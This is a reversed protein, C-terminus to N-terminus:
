EEKEKYEWAEICSEIIKEIKKLQGQDVCSVHIFIRNYYDLKESVKIEIDGKKFLFIFQKADHKVQFLQGVNYMMKNLVDAVLYSPNVMLKPIEWYIQYFKRKEDSVPVM